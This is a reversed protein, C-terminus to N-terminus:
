NKLLRAAYFGDGLGPPLILEEELQFQPHSELFQAIQKQNEAPFVSCTAYILKGGSKLLPSQRQLIEGQTKLLEQCQDYTLKWKSDPNRRLVGSGSCPVDLLLRDMSGHLRKLVKTSDILRTEVISTKARRARLKLETLKKEHIDLALIQGKNKMQAALALTKGGAGACGDAVREGPQAEVFQAVRQSHYDQMEFFGAAFAKSRFVNARQTLRLTLGDVKEIEFGEDRLAKMVQDPVAVLTNVRLFVPAEVNLERLITDWQAGLQQEGMQDLWDPISERVARLEECQRWNQSFQAQPSPLQALAGQEFKFNLYNALLQNQTEVTFLAGDSWSEGSAEAIRRWWRVMGYVIEAVLRRDRSGFKKQTKLYYEIVKPATRGQHFIDTLAQSM